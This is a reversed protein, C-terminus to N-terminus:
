GVFLKHIPSMACLRPNLGTTALSFYTEPLYYKWLKEELALFEALDFGHDVLVFRWCVPRNTRLLTRCGRATSGGPNLLRVKGHGHRLM